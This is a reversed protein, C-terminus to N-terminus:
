PELACDATRAVGAQALGQQFASRACGAVALAVPDATEEDVTPPLVDQMGEGCAMMATMFANACSEAPLSPYCTRLPSADACVEPVAEFSVMGLFESTAMPFTAETEQTPASAESGSTSSAVPAESTSSSGGCGALLSFLLASSRLSSMFGRYIPSLPTVGLLTSPSLRREVM